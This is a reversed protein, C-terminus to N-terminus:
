NLPQQQGDDVMGAFFPTSLWTLLTCRILVWPPM